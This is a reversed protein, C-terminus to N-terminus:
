RSGCGTTPARRSRGSLRYRDRGPFAVGPQQPQLVAAVLTPSLPAPVDRRRSGEDRSPLDATRGREASRTRVHVHAVFYYAYPMGAEDNYRYGTAGQPDWRACDLLIRRALQGYEEKGGLLRTFALTAAGNLAAITYTRNGWWLAKWEESGRDMEAPYKKPEDTSPPNKLLQECRAEPM